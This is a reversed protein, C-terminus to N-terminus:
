CCHVEEDTAHVGTEISADKEHDDVSAEDLDVQVVAISEDNRTGSNRVMMSYVALVSVKCRDM